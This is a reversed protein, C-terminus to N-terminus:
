ALADPRRKGEVCEKHRALRDFQGAIFILQDRESQDIVIGILHRVADARERYEESTM